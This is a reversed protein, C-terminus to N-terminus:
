PNNVTTDPMQEDLWNQAAVLEHESFVALGAQKLLASTVGPRSIRVGSFSGDYTVSSGCSPSGEKLIALRIGYQRAVALAQEAGSVFEATVDRGGAEIVQAQGSLVGIGGAGQSIEAPPRPVPLGAALEPCFPVVQGNALWAQLIRDECRKDGGDYRVAHGLLCASVLIRQM